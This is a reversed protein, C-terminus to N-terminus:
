GLLKCIHIDPTKRILFFRRGLQDTPIKEIM